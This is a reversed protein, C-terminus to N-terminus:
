TRGGMMERQKRNAELQKSNQRAMLPRLALRLMGEHSARTVPYQVMSSVLPCALADRHAFGAARRPGVRFDAM